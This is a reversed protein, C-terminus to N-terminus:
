KDMGAPAPQLNTVAKILEDQKALGLEAVALQEEAVSLDASKLLQDQIMKGFDLFGHRGSDINIGKVAEAAAALAQAEEEPKGYNVDRQSELELKRKTIPDIVDKALQEMLNKTADSTEFLKTGDPMKGSLGQTFSGLGSDAMITKKIEELRNGLNAMAFPNTMAYAIERAMAGAATSIKGFMDMVATMFNFFLVTAKYIGFGLIQPMLGAFNSVIDIVYSFALAGVDRFRNMINVWHDAIATIWEAINIAMDTFGRLISIFTAEAGAVSDDYWKLWDAFVGDLFVRDIFNFIGIFAAQVARYMHNWAQTLLAISEGWAVQLDKMSGMWQYLKYFGILVGGLATGIAAVAVFVATITGATVFELLVGLAVIAGIIAVTVSGVGATIAAFLVPMGGMANNVDLIVKFLKAGIEILPLLAMKFEVQMKTYAQQVPMLRRGMAEALNSYQKHLNKVAGATSGAAAAAAGEQGAIVEWLVGQASILDNMEMMQKVQREQEDTFKFGQRKLAGAGKAPNALAAAISQVTQRLSGGYITVIDEAAVIIKRFEAETKIGYTMLAAMANKIETGDFNSLSSLEEAIGMLQEKTFGAVNGVGKLTAELRSESEIAAQAEHIAGQGMNILQNLSFGIGVSALAGAFMGGMQSFVNRMEALMRGGSRKVSEEAPKTNVDLPPKHLADKLIDAIKAAMAEIAAIISPEAANIDPIVASTDARVTVHALAMEISM